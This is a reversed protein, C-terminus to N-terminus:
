FIRLYGSKDGDVLWRPLLEKYPYRVFKGGVGAPRYGTLISGYPDHCVLGDDYVGVAVIVHGGTPRTRSGRHLIGLCCPKGKSLSSKVDSLSGDTVFWSRIGLSALAKTQASHDTTDGYRYVIDLYQRIPVMKDPYLYEGVMWSCVSNCIRHEEDMDRDPYVDLQCLYPVPLKVEGTELQVHEKFLYWNHYGNIPEVLSVLIHNNPAEKVWHVLLERGKPVSVSQVGVETRQKPSSKLYTDQVCTVTKNKTNSM